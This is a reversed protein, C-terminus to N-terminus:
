DDGLDPPNPSMPRVGLWRAQHVFRGVFRPALKRALDFWGIMSWRM